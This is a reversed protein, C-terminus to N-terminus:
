TFHDHQPWRHYIRVPFLSILKPLESLAPGNITIKWACFGKRDSSNASHTDQLISFLFHERGVLVYSCNFAFAIEVLDYPLENLSVWRLPNRKTSLILASSNCLLDFTTKNFILKSLTKCFFLQNKTDSLSDSWYIILKSKCELVLLM